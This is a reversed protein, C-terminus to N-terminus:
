LGLDDATIKYSNSRHSKRFYYIMFYAAGILVVLALIIALVESFNVSPGQSNSPCAVATINDIVLWEQDVNSPSNIAIM